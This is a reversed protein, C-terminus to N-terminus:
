TTDLEGEAARHARERNDRAILMRQIENTGDYIEAIKADRLRREIGWEERDGDSGLLELAAASIRVGLETCRLKAISVDTIAGPAGLDVVMATTLLLTRAAAIESRMDALRFQAAQAERRGAALLGRALSWRMASRYAGVANGLGQAAASIRSNVVAEMSLAFGAGEAGLRDTAPIRCDEFFLECTSSGRLGIKKMPKGRTLGEPEGDVIFATIGDRGATPEVTAFLVIVQARDGNTIFTKSGDILYGGDVKAARTRLGRLDSGAGPETMAVAGISAGTAM